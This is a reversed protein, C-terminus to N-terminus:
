AGWIRVVVRPRPLPFRELLRNFREWTLRTRQSRRRLWKRWVRQTAHVVRALSRHNGNVGFYNFHGALRRKLAAHQVEVPLHRHRRCWESVRRNFRRLGKSRTKCWMQWRGRWTRRWYMTFGLFDFTGPGKGSRQGAEPREFAILRTKEPHLRLGFREMRKGLVEAVRQADECREFGIVFDDCYRVLVAEGGLRPKVEREFWVDLTHHLYLNGLLPSLGSGQPTGREPETREEGDLVGVRVCKGVLRRLSGDAVRARKPTMKAIVRRHRRGGRAEFSVQMGAAFGAKAAVSHARAGDRGQARARPTAGIRRAVAKWAPGHGAKAVEGLREGGRDRDPEDRRWLVVYPVDWRQQACRVRARKPNIEITGPRTSGDRATFVVDDGVEFPVQARDLDTVITRLPARDDALLAGWRIRLRAGDERLVTAYRTAAGVVHGRESRRSANFWSVAAGLPVPKDDREM